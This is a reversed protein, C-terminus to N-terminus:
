SPRAPVVGKPHLDIGALPDVPQEEVAAATADARKAGGLDLGDIVEEEGVEV